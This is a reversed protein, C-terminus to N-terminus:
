FNFFFFFFFMTAAIRSIIRRERTSSVQLRQSYGNSTSKSTPKLLYGMLFLKAMTKKEVLQVMKKLLM